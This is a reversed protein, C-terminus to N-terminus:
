SVSTGCGGCFKATPKLPKGCNSCSSSTEERRPEERRPEKKPLLTPAGFYQEALILEEEGIEKIIDSINLLIEREEVKMSVLRAHAESSYHNSHSADPLNSLKGSLVARGLNAKFLLDASKSADKAAIQSISLSEAKHNLKSLESKLNRLRESTLESRVKACNGCELGGLSFLKDQIVESNMLGMEVFFVSRQMLTMSRRQFYKKCWPCGRETNQIKETMKDYLQGNTENGTVDLDWTPAIESLGLPITEMFKKFKRRGLLGKNTYKEHEVMAILHHELCHAQYCIVCKWEKKRMENSRLDCTEDGTEFERRTYTACWFNVHKADYKEDRFGLEKSCKICSKSMTIIIQSAFLSSREVAKIWV